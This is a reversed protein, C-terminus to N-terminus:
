SAAGPEPPVSGDSREPQDPGVPPNHDVVTLGPRGRQLADLFGDLDVLERPLRLLTGDAFRLRVPWVGLSTGIDVSRLEAVPRRVSGARSETVLMGDVLRVVRPVRRARRLAGVAVVVTLVLVVVAVAIALPDDVVLLVLLFWVPLSRFLM